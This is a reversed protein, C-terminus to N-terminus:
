ECLGAHGEKVADGCAEDILKDPTEKQLMASCRLVDGEAIFVTSCEKPVTNTLKNRSSIPFPKIASFTGEAEAAKAGDQGEVAEEKGKEDGDGEGEKKDEEKTEAPTTQFEINNQRLFEQLEDVNFDRMYYLCDRPHHAHLGRAACSQFRGCAQSFNYVAALDSM